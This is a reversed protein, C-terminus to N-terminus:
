NLPIQNNAKGSQYHDSALLYRSKIAQIKAHLEEQTHSQLSHKCNITKQMKDANLHQKEQGLITEEEFNKINSFDKKNIRNKFFAIDKM